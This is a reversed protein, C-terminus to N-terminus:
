LENNLELYIKMSTSAAVSGVVKVQVFKGLNSLQTATTVAANQIVVHASAANVALSDATPGSNVTVTVVATSTAGTPDIYLTGTRANENQVATSLTTSSNAFGITTGFPLLVKKKIM